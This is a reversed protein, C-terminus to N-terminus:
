LFSIKSWKPNQTLKPHLLLLLNNEKVGRAERYCAALAWPYQLLRICSPLNKLYHAKKLYVCFRDKRQSRTASHDHSFFLCDSITGSYERMVKFSHRNVSWVSTTLKTLLFIKHPTPSRFKPRWPFIISLHLCSSPGSHPRPGSQDVSVDDAQSLSLSLSQKWDSDCKTNFCNRHSSTKTKNGTQMGADGSTLAASGSFMWGGTRHHVRATFQGFLNTVSSAEECRTFLKYVLQNNWLAELLDTFNNWLLGSLWLLRYCQFSRRWLSVKIYPQM